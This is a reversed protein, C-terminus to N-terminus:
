ERSLSQDLDRLKMFLSKEEDTLNRPLQVDVRVFLDGRLEPNKLKPMGLGQLRLVAGNKTEPPITLTVTRDIAAVQKEGGLIATYLNVPVDLRLNDGEREFGPHPLVEIVLFLDGTRGGATGQGGQGKLRVRSGTRVGPPITAEIRNGAEWQLMRTTGYFAEELSIQVPHEIDRGRRARSTTGFPTQTYQRDGFDMRGGGMGGFLTEFFDSFGGGGFGGFMQEFEEPSVTRTYTGGPQAAWQSWDFDEARGGRQQYQEWQSGFRDYKQRKEKDSLVQYAENIEKFREEAAADGPNVDPHHKRALRRYAKKIEDESADKSVGLINYYDKYEM